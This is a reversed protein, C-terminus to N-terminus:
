RSARAVAPLPLERGAARGAELADLRVTISRGRKLGLRESTFQRVMQQRAEIAADLRILARAELGENQLQRRAEHQVTSLREVVTEAAGIRFSEHWDRVHGEGHTASLWELRKVLWAWLATVAERDEVRGAICLHQERKKAAVTYAACGNAHALGSALVAKWKRIKRAVELPEDRGDSLSEETRDTEDLLAQLQHRAILEQAKAAASAAEHVNPSTALALLKRVKDLLADTSRTM